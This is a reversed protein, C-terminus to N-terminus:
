SIIGVDVFENTRHEQFLVGGFGLARNVTSQLVNPVFHLVEAGAVRRCELGLDSVPEFLLRTSSFM